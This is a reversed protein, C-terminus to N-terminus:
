PHAKMVFAIGPYIHVARVKDFTMVPSDWDARRVFVRDRAQVDDILGRVFDVATDQPAPRGGGYSRVYSTHLDEIVYVGGPSMLPFLYTFSDRAHGRLHSGDDIIIDPPGGLAEVAEELAREDTQDGCVFRVSPGLDVDKESIDLGVVVSRPLYDRWLRLSGGPRRTEYGGVGIELIRCRKWRYPKLHYSYYSTYGHSWKDTGGYLRTALGLPTVAGLRLSRASSRFLKYEPV